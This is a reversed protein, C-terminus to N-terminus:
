TSGRRSPTSSSSAAATARTSSCALSTSTSRRAGRSCGRARTRSSRSIDTIWPACSGSRRRKARCRSRATCRASSSISAAPVDDPLDLRGDELIDVEIGKLVVFGSLEANLRDIAEIQALLRDPDLGHAVTLRRSHDTIALYAHGLARAGEAMERLTARGDTARTHAHLDGRLDGPEVLVPLKGALAAAIEGRDERLEPPIYPLGVSQFVSEETAGAVREEGRFVGYENIRLGREQGMRRVAIVHAKSGTFYHLAAGYSADDVLRLDVQLGGRLIVTARTPGRSDVKEVADYAVFRDMVENADEATVVVDLDGVTEKGRRYSGAVAARVVGPIAQLVQMLAEAHAAAFARTFRHQEDRRAEITENIRQETKAGFGPLDHILGSKAAAALDETTAIGLAEHLARIRKPGLGPLRLLATLAPPTQASLERLTASEGTTVIEAIKAALDRGIGPLTALDEGAAVLAAVDRPLDGIVRAANRYARVRFPNGDAIELFDAITSLVTAVEANPVIRPSRTARASM